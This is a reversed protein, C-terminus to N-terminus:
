RISNSLNSLAFNIKNKDLNIGEIIYRFPKKPLLISFQKMNKKYSVLELNSNYLYIDLPKICFFTHVFGDDIDKKMDLIYIHDKKPIQFMLGIFSRLPGFYSIKYKSESEM